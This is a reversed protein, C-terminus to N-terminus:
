KGKQFIRHTVTNNALLSYRAVNELLICFSFLIRDKSTITLTTTIKLKVLRKNDHHFGIPL